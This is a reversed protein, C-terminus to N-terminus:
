IADWAKQLSKERRFYENIEKVLGREYGTLGSLNLAVQDAKFLDYNDHHKSAGKSQSTEFEDRLVIMLEFSVGEATTGCLKMCRFDLSEGNKVNGELYNYVVFFGPPIPTNKNHDELKNLNMSLGIQSPYAHVYALVENDKLDDHSVNWLVITSGNVDFIHELGRQKYRILKEICSGPSKPRNGTYYALQTGLPKCGVVPKLTRLKYEDTTETEFNVINGNEDLYLTDSIMDVDEFAAGILANDVENTDNADLSQRIRPNADVCFLLYAINAIDLCALRSIKPDEIMPDLVRNIFYFLSKSEIESPIDFRIKKGPRNGLKETRAKELREGLKQYYKVAKRVCKNLLISAEEIEAEEFGLGNLLLKLAGQEKCEGSDLSRRVERVAARVQKTSIAHGQHHRLTKKNDVERVREGLIHVLAKVLPNVIEQDLDEDSNKTAEAIRVAVDYMEKEVEMPDPRYPLFPTLNGMDGECVARALLTNCHLSLRDLYGRVAAISAYVPDSIEGDIGYNLAVDHEALGTGRLGQLIREGDM